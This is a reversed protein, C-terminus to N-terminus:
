LQKPQRVDRCVPLGEALEIVLAVELKESLFEHLAKDQTWEKSRVKPHKSVDIVGELDETTICGSGDQDLKQFVEKVLDQRMRNM